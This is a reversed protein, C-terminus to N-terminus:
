KSRLKKLLKTIPVGLKKAVWRLGSSRGDSWDNLPNTDQKVRPM